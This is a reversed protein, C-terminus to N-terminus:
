KAELWHLGIVFSVKIQYRDPVHQNEFILVENLLHPDHAFVQYLIGMTKMLLFIAQSHVLPKGDRVSQSRRENVTYVIKIMSFGAQIIHLKVYM